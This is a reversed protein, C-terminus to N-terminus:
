ANREHIMRKIETLTYRIGSQMNILAPLAEKNSLDVINNTQITDLGVTIAMAGRRLKEYEDYSLKDSLAKLSERAKFGYEGIKGVLITIPTIAYKLNGQAIVINLLGELQTLIVEIDYLLYIIKNNKNNKFWTYSGIISGSVVSFFLIIFSRRDKDKNAWNAPKKSDESWDNLLTFVGLSAIIAGCISLLLKM